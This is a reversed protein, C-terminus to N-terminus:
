ARIGTKKYVDWTSKIITNIDSHEAKWGLVDRALKASATLSAPDGARRGTIVSPIPRGTVLRAAKLIELV